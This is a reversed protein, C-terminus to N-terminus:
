YLPLNLGLLKHLAYAMVMLGAFIKLNRVVSYTATGAFASVFVMVFIGASVNVLKSVVAFGCLSGLIIGINKFNFHMPVAAAFRSRVISIVGILLLLASVMLPFLGPGAHSFQGITYGLSGIGFFLALAMFFLGRILNQNNM